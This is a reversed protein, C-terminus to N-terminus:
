VPQASETLGGASLACLQMHAIELHLRKNSSNRYNLDCQNNLNLAQLLFQPSCKRSQEAYRDQLTKSVEMLKITAEDKSVLLSRLHSGLGHIFHQPDFGNDIIENLTLLVAS